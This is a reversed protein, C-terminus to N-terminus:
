RPAVGANVDSPDAGDELVALARKAMRQRYAAITEPDELYSPVPIDAMSVAMLERADERKVEAEEETLVGGAVAAQLNQNLWRLALTKEHLLRSVELDFPAGAAASITPRLTLEDFQAFAEDVDERTPVATITRPVKHPPREPPAVGPRAVPAPVTGAPPPALPATKLTRPRPAPAEDIRPSEPNVGSLGWVALGGAVLLVAVLPAGTAITRNTSM